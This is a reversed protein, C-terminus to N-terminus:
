KIRNVVDQAPRMRPKRVSETEEDSSGGAGQQQQQPKQQQQQKKKEQKKPQADQKTSAASAQADAAAAFLGLGELADKVCVAMAFVAPEGLKAQEAAM